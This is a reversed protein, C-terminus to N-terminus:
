EVTEFSFFLQQFNEIILKQSPNASDNTSILVEKYFFILNSIRSVRLLVWKWKYSTIQDFERSSVDFYFNWILFEVFIQVFLIGQEVEILEVNKM